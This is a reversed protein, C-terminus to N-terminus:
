RPPHYTFGVQQNPIPEGNRTIVCNLLRHNPIETGTFEWWNETGNTLIAQVNRSSKTEGAQHWSEIKYASVVQGDVVGLATQYPTEGHRVARAVHYWYQRTIDYLEANPMGPQYTNHIYFFIFYEQNQTDISEITITM